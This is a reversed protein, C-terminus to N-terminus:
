TWVFVQHDVQRRLVSRSSIFLAINNGYLDWDLTPQEIVQHIILHRANTYALAHHQGRLRVKTRVHHGDREDPSLDDEGNVLLVLPRASAQSAVQGLFGALSQAQLEVPRLKEYFNDLLKRNEGSLFQRLLRAMAPSPNNQERCLQVLKDIDWPDPGVKISLSTDQDGLQTDSGGNVTSLTTVLRGPATADQTARGTDAGTPDFAKLGDNLGEALTPWCEDMLRLRRPNV